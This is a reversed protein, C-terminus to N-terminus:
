TDASGFKSKTEQYLKDFVQDLTKSDPYYKFLEILSTMTEAKWSNGSVGLGMNLKDLFAILNKETLDDEIQEKIATLLADTNELGTPWDTMALWLSKIQIYFKDSHDLSDELECVREYTLKKTM